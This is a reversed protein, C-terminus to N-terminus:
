YRKRAVAKKAAPRKAPQGKGKPKSKDEEDFQTYPFDISAKAEEHRKMIVEMYDNPIQAIPEFQVRFQNKPDPHVSVRTFIGHPPRKLAGTIQKVFAAYGKVSTVPIKMYGIMAKDFHDVDSIQKFRGGDFTGAQIMAIRRTNRCAKGRGRDASAWENMECGHCLGSAGAMSNGAEVVLKHPAMIKEERGFAFCTPPAPNSPDYEGEYYVNELIGDLIVVAMENNPLPADNYTLIGSALGYFQGTATSEEVKAAIEAQRALEEDWKAIATSTSTKKTAM